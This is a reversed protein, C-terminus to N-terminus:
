LCPPKECGRARVRVSTSARGADLAQCPDCLRAQSAAAAGPPAIGSLSKAVIYQKGSWRAAAGRRRTMRALASELWPADPGVIGAIGCM